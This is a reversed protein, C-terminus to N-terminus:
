RVIHEGYFYLFDVIAVIEKETRSVFVEVSQVESLGYEMLTQVVEEKNMSLGRKRTEYNKLQGIFGIKWEINITYEHM